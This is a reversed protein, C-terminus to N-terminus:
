RKGLRHLIEALGAAGLCIGALVLVFIAADVGIADSANSATNAAKISVILLGAGILGFIASLIRM